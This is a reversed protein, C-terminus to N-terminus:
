EHTAGLDLWPAVLYALEERLGCRANWREVQNLQRQTPHGGALSM